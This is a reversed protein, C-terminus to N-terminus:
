KGREERVVESMPKGSWALAVAGVLVAGVCAYAAWAPLWREAAYAGPAAVVAGLLLGAWAPLKDIAPFVAVMRWARALRERVITRAIIPAVDALPM